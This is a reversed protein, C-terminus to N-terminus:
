FIYLSFNILLKLLLTFQAQCAKTKKTIKLIRDDHELPQAKYNLRHNEIWLKM